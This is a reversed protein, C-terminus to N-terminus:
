AQSKKFGALRQMRKADNMVTVEAAFTTERGRGYSKETRGAYENLSDAFLQAEIRDLKVTIRTNHADQLAITVRLNSDVTIANPDKM